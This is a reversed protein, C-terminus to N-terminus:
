IQHNERKIGRRLKLSLTKAADTRGDTWGDKWVKQRDPVM